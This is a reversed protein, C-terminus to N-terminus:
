KPLAKRCWYSYWERVHGKTPNRLFIRKFRLQWKLRRFKARKRRLKRMIKAHYLADSKLYHSPLSRKM